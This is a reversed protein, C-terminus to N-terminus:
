INPSSIIDDDPYLSVVLPLVFINAIKEEANGLYPLTIACLQQLENYPDFTIASEMLSGKKRM